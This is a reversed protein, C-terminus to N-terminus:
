FSERHSLALHAEECGREAALTYLDTAKARNVAVVGWGHEYFRGLRFMAKAVDNEDNDEDGQYRTVIRGYWEFAKSKDEPLGHGTEYCQAVALFALSEGSLALQLLTQAAEEPQAHVGAWGNLEYLAVMLAAATSTASPTTEATATAPLITTAHEKAAKFLRYAEAQARPTNEQHLLRALALEALWWGNEAALGYWNKAMDISPSVHIGHEYYTGLFLAATKNAGQQAARCFFDYAKGFDQHIVGDDTGTHYLKGLECQAAVSGLQAAREMWELGEERVLRNNASMETFMLLQGLEYMADCDHQAAAQRFHDRAISLDAELLIDGTEEDQIGHVYYLGICYHARPHNRSDCAFRYWQLAELDKNSGTEEPSSPVRGYAHMQGIRFMAEADQTAEASRLYWELALRDDQITGLGLEHCQGLSNYADVCNDENACQLLEKYGAVPDADIGGYGAIWYRARMVRSLAHGQNAAREYHDLAAAFQEQSHWSQAALFMAEVHGMAAAQEFCRISLDHHKSRHQMLQEAEETEDMDGSLPPEQQQDKQQAAAAANSQRQYHKGLMVLAEADGSQVASALLDMAQEVTEDAETPMLPLGNEENIAAAASTSSQLLLSALERMSPTHGAAIAKHWWKIAVDQDGNELAMRGLAWCSASYKSASHTFWVVAEGLNIPVNYLGRWYAMGLKHQAEPHDWEAARQYYKLAEVTNVPTGQGLEYMVAVRIAADAERTKDVALLYWQLAKEYDSDAGIGDYYCNGLWFYASPFKDATALEFLLRFGDAVTLGALNTLQVPRLQEKQGMTTTLGGASAISSPLSANTAAAVATEDYYYGLVYRALM